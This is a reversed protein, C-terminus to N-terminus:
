HRFVDVRNGVLQPEALTKEILFHIDWDAPSGILLIITVIADPTTSRELASAACWAVATKSRPFRSVSVPVTVSHNQAFGCQRSRKSTLVSLPSVVCQTASVWAGGFM